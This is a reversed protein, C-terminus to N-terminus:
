RQPNPRHNGEIQTNGVGWSICPPLQLCCLDVLPLHHLRTSGRWRVVMGHLTEPWNVCGCGRMLEERGGMIYNGLSQVCCLGIEKWGM